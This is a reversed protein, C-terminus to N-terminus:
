LSIDGEITHSNIFEILERNCEINDIYSGDVYLLQKLQKLYVEGYLELLNRYLIPSGYLNAFYLARLFEVPMLITDRFDAFRLEYGGEDQEEYVSLKKDVGLEIMAHMMMATVINWVGCAIYLHIEDDTEIIKKYENYSDPSLKLLASYEKIKNMLREANGNM